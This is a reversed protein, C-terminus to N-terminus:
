LDAFLDISSNLSFRLEEEFFAPTGSHKSLAEYLLDGMQERVYSKFYHIKANIFKEQEKVWRDINIDGYDDVYVLQNFKDKLTEVYDKETLYMLGLYEFSIGIITSYEFVKVKHDKSFHSSNKLEFPKGRISVLMEAWIFSYESVLDSHSQKTNELAKDLWSILLDVDKPSLTSSNSILSGNQIVAEIYDFFSQLINFIGKLNM